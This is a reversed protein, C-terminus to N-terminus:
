IRPGRWYKLRESFWTLLSQRQSMGTEKEIKELAEQAVKQEQPNKAEGLAKKARQAMEEREKRFKALSEEGTIVRASTVVRVNKMRSPAYRRYPDWGREYIFPRIINYYFGRPNNIKTVRTTPGSPAPPPAVQHLGGGSGAKGTVIGELEDYLNPNRNRLADRFKMEFMPDLLMRIVNKEDDSLYNFNLGHVLGEWNPHLVLVQPFKDHRGVPGVRTSKGEYSFTILDGIQFAM